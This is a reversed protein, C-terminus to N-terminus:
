DIELLINESKEVSRVTLVMGPSARGASVTMPGMPTRASLSPTVTTFIWCVSTMMLAAMRWAITYQSATMVFVTTPASCTSVNGM